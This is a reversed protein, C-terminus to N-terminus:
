SKYETIIISSYLVGGLYRNGGNGNLTLTSVSDTGARVKFTTASTTGAEMWHTLLVPAVPTSGPVHVTTANIADVLTDQFLAGITVLGQLSSRLNLSVDIRLMNAASQPTISALIYEDGETNQPITDDWPIPNSGTSVEGDLVSVVQVTIGPSSQYVFQAGDYIAEVEVLQLEEGVLAAGTHSNFINKTGLGAVDVTSAGTNISGPTFRIKMGDFYSAPAQMNGRAALVYANASGVEDYSVARGAAIEVISQLYQSAGVQDPSGSPVIGSAKLLAQQQGFIDNLLAAEWPTGTGDGPTTINQAQGYPYESSSAAVKGPYQTEPNISM